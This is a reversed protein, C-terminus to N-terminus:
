KKKGGIAILGIMSEIRGDIDLIKNFGDDIFGGISCAALELATGVLYINQSIHGFETMIHRYGRDKYKMETREFVATPIILVCSDKIWEQKVYKMANEKINEFPIAELSNTKFHYHYVGSDLGQVNFIFLYIELPYRGGASPYMRNESTDRKMIKKMGISYYLLTSLQKLNIPRDSYERQSSRSLIAKYLDFKIKTPLPLVKQKFRPYAKYYVTKWEQPWLDHPPENKFRRIKIYNNFTRARSLGTIKTYTNTPM